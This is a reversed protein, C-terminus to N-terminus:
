LSPGPPINARGWLYLNDFVKVPEAHWQSRDPPGPQAAPAPRQQTAQAPEACLSSFLFVHDQGAAIKAAALHTEVTDAKSKAAIKTNGIILMLTAALLGIALPKM